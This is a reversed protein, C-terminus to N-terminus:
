RTPESIHILSLALSARRAASAAVARAMIRRPVLPARHGLPVMADIDTMVLRLGPERPVRDRFGRLEHDDLEGFTYPSVGFGFREHASSPVDAEGDAPIVEPVVPDRRLRLEIREGCHGVAAADTRSVQERREVELIRRVALERARATLRGLLPALASRAKPTVHREVDVLDIPGLEARRRPTERALEPHRM